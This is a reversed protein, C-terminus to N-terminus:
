PEAPWRRGPSAQSAVRGSLNSSNTVGSRLASEQEAGPVRTRGPFRGSVRVRSAPQHAPRRAPLLHGAALIDRMALQLHSNRLEHTAQRTAETAAAELRQADERLQRVVTVTQDFEEPLQPVVTVDFSDEPVELLLAIAERAMESAQELRRAQSFDGRVEPVEIAWWGDSRTCVATYTPRLSM